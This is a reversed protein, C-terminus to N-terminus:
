SLFYNKKSIKNNFNNDNFWDNWDNLTYVLNFFLPITASMKVPIRSSMAAVGFKFCEFQQDLLVCEFM